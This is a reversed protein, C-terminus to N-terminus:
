LKQEHEEQLIADHTGAFDRSKFLKKVHKVLKSAIFVPFIHTHTYIYIYNRTWSALSFSGFTLFFAHSTVEHDNLERPNMWGLTRVFEGSQLRAILRRSTWLSEGDGFGYRVVHMISFLCFESSYGSTVLCSVPWWPFRMMLLTVQQVFAASDRDVKTASIPLDAGTGSARRM